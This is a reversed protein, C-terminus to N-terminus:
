NDPGRRDWATLSELQRNNKRSNCIGHTPHINYEAHVGQPEGRRPHLPLEHDFEIDHHPLIPQQCLYCFHGDRELIHKYDIRGVRAARQRIKGRKGAERVLLPNKRRWELMDQRLKERYDADVMKKIAVRDRRKARNEDTNHRQRDYARRQELRPIRSEKDLQRERQKEEEPLADWQDRYCQKCRGRYGDVQDTSRGFNNHAKEQLCTNCIKCGEETAKPLVPTKRMRRMTNRARDKARNCEICTAIPKGNRYSFEDFPKEAECDFCFRYGERTPQLQARKSHPNRRPEISQYSQGRARDRANTCLRCYSTPMGRCVPFVDLHLEKECDYCFKYGPRAEPFVKKRRTHYLETM